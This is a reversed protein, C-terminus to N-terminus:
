ATVTKEDWDARLGFNYERMLEHLAFWGGESFRPHNRIAKELKEIFEKTVPRWGISAVQWWKGNIGVFDNVSLSRIRADIFDKSEMGSGHNWEAFIRELQNEYSNEDATVFSFNREGPYIISVANM